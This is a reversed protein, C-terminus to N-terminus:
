KMLLRIRRIIESQDKEVNISLTNLGNLQNKTKTPPTKIIFIPEQNNYRLKTEKYDDVSNIIFILPIKPYSSPYSECLVVNEPVLKTLEELTSRTKVKTYTVTEYPSSFIVRNTTSGHFLASDKSDPDISYHSSSFKIILVTIEAKGLLQSCKLTFTTKGTNRSGVIGILLPKM